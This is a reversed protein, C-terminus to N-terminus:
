LKVFGKFSNKWIKKVLENEKRKMRRKLEPKTDDYGIMHLIGHIILRVVENEFFVKFKKANERADELSIFLEGDLITKEESYNFTIIDTSFDHNLYQVNIEHIQESNMFNIELSSVRLSLESCVEKVIVHVDKKKVKAKAHNYVRLGKM